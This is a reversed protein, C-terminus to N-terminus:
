PSKASDNSQADEARDYTFALTFDSNKVSGPDSMDFVKYGGPGFKDEHSKTGWLHPFLVVDIKTDLLARDEYHMPLVIQYIANSFHLSFMMFPCDSVDIKRRLLHYSFQNSPLPGSIFQAFIILPRFAYSEYSHVPNLIWKKLHECAPSEAAPMVALAMKVLCKFVGMPRYPQIPATLTFRKNADDAIYRNNEKSIRMELM